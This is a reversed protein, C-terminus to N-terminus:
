VAHRILKRLANKLAGDSLQKMLKELPAKSPPIRREVQGITPKTASFPQVYVFISNFELGVASLKRLLQPAHQKVVTAVTGSPVILKLEGSKHSVVVRTQTAALRPLEKRVTLTLANEYEYRRLFGSLVDEHEIVRNFTRCNRPIRPPM